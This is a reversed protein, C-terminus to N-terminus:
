AGGLPPQKWSTVTSKPFPESRRRGSSAISLGLSRLVESNERFHVLPYKPYSPGSLHSIARGRRSIPVLSLRIPALCQIAVRLTLVVELTRACTTVGAAPLVGLYGRHEGQRPIVVGLICAMEEQGDLLVGGRRLSLPGQAGASHLVRKM